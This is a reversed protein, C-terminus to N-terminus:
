IDLAALTKEFGTEDFGIVSIGDSSGIQSHGCVLVTIMSGYALTSIGAPVDSGVIVIHAYRSEALFTMLTDHTGVAPCALYEDAMQEAQQETNVKRIIAGGKEPDIWCASISHGEKLAASLMSAFVSACADMSEFSASQDCIGLVALLDDTVPLSLEKVLMKDMKESLKWHINKVPDGPVYERISRVEGPDNGHRIRSYKDSELISSASSGLDLMMHFQNPKLTFDRRTHANIRKRFIRLPDYITISDAYFEYRGAHVFDFGTEAAAKSRSGVYSGPVTHNSNLSKDSDDNKKKQGGFFKEGTRLNRVHVDAEAWAVPIISGNIFVLENANIEVNLNRGSLVLMVASVLLVTILSALVALTVTGNSFLYAVAAAIVIILWIIRRKLM